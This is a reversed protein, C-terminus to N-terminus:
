ASPSSYTVLFHLQISHSLGQCVNSFESLFGLIVGIEFFFILPFKHSGIMQMQQTSPVSQGVSKLDTGLSHVIYKLYGGPCSDYWRPSGAGLITFGWFHSQYEGNVTTNPPFLNFGDQFNFKM